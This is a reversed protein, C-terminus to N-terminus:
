LFWIPSLSELPLLFLPLLFVIQVITFFPSVNLTRWVASLVLQLSTFHFDLLNGKSVFYFVGGLFGAVCVCVCVCM